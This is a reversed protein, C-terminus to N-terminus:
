LWPAFAFLAAEVEREIDIRRRVDHLVTIECPVGYM